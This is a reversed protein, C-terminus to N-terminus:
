LLSDLLMEDVTGVQLILGGLRQALRDCGCHLGHQGADGTAALDQGAARARGDGVRLHECRQAHRPELAVTGFERCERQARLSPQQAAQRDRASRQDPQNGQPTPDEFLNM